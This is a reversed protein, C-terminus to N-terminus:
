KHLVVLDRVEPRAATWPHDFGLAVSTYGLLRRVTPSADEVVKPDLVLPYNTMPRIWSPGYGVVLVPRDIDTQNAGAAHM